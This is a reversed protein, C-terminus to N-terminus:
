FEYVSKMWDATKRIGNVLDISNQHGLDKISKSIDVVKTKTTLVESDKYSALSPDAGTIDIIIESLEEITHLDKGGINYTEGPKFNDIINSLTNVTDQLYTSTRSHGRYVTWELGQPCLLSVQM